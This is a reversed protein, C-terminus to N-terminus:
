NNQFPNALVFKEAILNTMAVFLHKRGYGDINHNKNPYMMMRFQIGKEQLSQVLVASNQFHVNDDANGHAIFVTANKFGDLRNLISAEEYGKLNEKPSLMFRETYGTDYFRFDSVPAVLLGLSFVHDNIGMAMGGLYAGHSWGFIGVKSKHVYRFTKIYKAFAIIDEAEQVGMRLYTSYMFKYMLVPYQKDKDFGPPYYIFTNMKYGDREFEMIERKPLTIDKLINRLRQNTEMTVDRCGLLCYHGNTSFSGTYFNCEEIPKFNCSICKKNTGNISVSYINRSTSSLQTSQFFILQRAESYAYITTVQWNGATLWFKRGDSLTVRAIHFYTKGSAGKKPLVAFYYDGASNFLPSKYKYDIWGNSQTLHHIQRCQGNTADCSMLISTNSFRNLWTVTVITDSAWVVNTFYYEENAFKAPPLLQVVNRADTAKTVYVAIKSNKTGAKPYQISKVTTYSMKGEYWMWQASGVGSANYNGYCIYTSSKSWYLANSSYLIEELTSLSALIHLELTNFFIAINRAESNWDPVGNFIIGDVGTNTLRVSANGQTPDPIVYIDNLYIFALQHGTASWGMYRLLKSSGMPELRFVKKDSIRYAVYRAFFSYRYQLKVEYALLLYQGDPSIWTREGKLSAKESATLLTKSTNTDVNYEILDGDANNYEYSTDSLWSVYVSQPNFSSNFLQSFGYIRGQYSPPQADINSNRLYITVAIIGVIAGVFLIISGILIYTKRDTNRIQIRPTGMITLSETYSSLECNPIPIRSHCNTNTM